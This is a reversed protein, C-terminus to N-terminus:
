YSASISLQTKTGGVGCLRHPSKQYGCYSKSSQRSLERPFQCARGEDETHFAWCWSSAGIWLSRHVVPAKGIFCRPREKSTKGVADKADCSALFVSGLTYDLGETMAEEMVFPSPRGVQCFVTSASM